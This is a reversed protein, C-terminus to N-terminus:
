KNKNLLNFKKQCENLAKIFDVCDRNDKQCNDLNLQEIKCDNEKIIKKKTHIITSPPMNYLILIM